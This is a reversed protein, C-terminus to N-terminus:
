RTVTSSVVPIEVHLRLGRDPETTITVQGQLERVREELGRLGISGNKLRRPDCGAGNDEVTLTLRQEDGRLGIRIQTAHAHRACNTLAEQVVRFVCIRHADPLDDINGAVDLEVPTGTRRFFDRSELELAPGLGLDDLLSPRLGAAIDRVTRLTLDALSQAEALHEEFKTPPGSRLRQLTGLELRLATLTQGVQDHLERSLVHREEEQAKMLQQSLIRLDNGAQETALQQRHTERELSYIRLVTAGAVAFGLLLAAAVLNEIDARFQVRNGDLSQQQRRYNGRHLEALHGATALLSERRLRQQERLFYTARARREEPLWSFVPLVDAAHQKLDTDLRGFPGLDQPHLVAQLSTLLGASEARNAEFRKRYWESKTDSSDLLFERVLLSGNTIRTSIADLMRQGEEYQRQVSRIENFSRETRKLLLLGPVCILLLLTCLGLLFVPWTRNPMRNIESYGATM